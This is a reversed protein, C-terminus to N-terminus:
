LEWMHMGSLQLFIRGSWPNGGYTAQFDEPLSYKTVSGGLGLEAGEWGALRHTYGATFAAVWRGSAPDPLGPIALEEPTRQLLEVRGWIRPGSGRFLFEEGFSSLSTAHDYRTILGYILTNYFSWEEGLPHQWYASASYRNEFLIDPLDPEPNQVRAFSAMAFLVPSFDHIYRFSFSNPTGLPLDVQTPEPETGNYVSAEFREDGQKLSAGIVTSSIHGVDQGIHHGLPADPNVMGTTRHMFAIPGDTSEGRPAFFFKVHDKGTGLSITDSFTLGMIPSSHPHQADIFPVGQANSEGIQLLLPYGAEPFLWKEATLMLDVNLYHRDGVNTGLDAMVM